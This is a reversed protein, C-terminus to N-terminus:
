NMGFRNKNSEFNDKDVLLYRNNFAEDLEDDDPSFDEDIQSLGIVIAKLGGKNFATSLVKTSAGM